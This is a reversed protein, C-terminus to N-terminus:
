ADVFEDDSLTIAQQKPIAKNTRKSENKSAITNTHTRAGDNNEATSTTAREEKEKGNDNTAAREEVKRQKNNKKKAENKTQTDRAMISQEIENVQEISNINVVTGNTTERVLIRGNSIWVFKIGFKKLNKARKFLLLSDRTLQEDVYIPKLEGQYGYMQTNIKKAKSAKVSDRKKNDDAFQVLVCSDKNKNHIQRVSLIDTDKIKVEALEAVHMVAALANEDGGVGRIIVNNNITKQEGVNLKTKLEKVEASLESCKKTLASVECKLKENKEANRKLHNKFEDFSNSLFQQSKILEANQKMVASLQNHEGQESEGNRKNTSSATQETSTNCTATRKRTKQKQPPM